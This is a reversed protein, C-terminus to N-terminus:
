ATNVLSGISLYNNEVEILEVLLDKIGRGHWRLKNLTEKTMGTWGERSISQKIAYMYDFNPTNIALHMPHILIVKNGTKSTLLNIDLDHKRFLFGGDEMFIPIEILGYRDTFPPLIELDTCVNSSIKMGADVMAQMSPNCRAFRHCRFAQLNHEVDMINKMIEQLHFGHSSDQGFYPHLGVELKTINAKIVNSNHTAFITPSINYETFFDLMEEIAVEPAWDLDVTIVLSM